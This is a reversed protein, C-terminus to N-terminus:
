QVQSFHADNREAYFNVSKTVKIIVHKLSGGEHFKADFTKFPRM